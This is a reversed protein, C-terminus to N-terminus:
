ELTQKKTAEREKIRKQWEEGEVKMNYGAASLYNNIRGKYKGFVAHKKESSGEDMALERAEKLWSYIQAKQETTLQPLMDQYAAWTVPLVGYTMGDKIKEIQEQTLQDELLAIYKLHLQALLQKKKDEQEKMAKDLKDKETSQKKIAEVVVRDTEHIMNLQFYQDVVLGLVNKYKGSDTIQLTNIIKVSRETIVKKYEDQQAIASQVFTFVATLLLINKAQSFKSLFFFRTFLIAFEGPRIKNSASDSSALLFRKM